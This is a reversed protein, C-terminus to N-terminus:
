FLNISSDLLNNGLSLSTNFRSFTKQSIKQFSDNGLNGLEFVVNSTVIDKVIKQIIDKFRCDFVGNLVKDGSNGFVKTIKSVFQFGFFKDANSFDHFSSSIQFVDKGLHFGLNLRSFDLVVDIVEQVLNLSSNFSLNSSGGRSDLGDQLLNISCYLSNNCSGISMNFRSLTKQSVKQFSDNGLNGLQLVINSTIIDKIIKQIIDKFRSDFVGNLVKDGGNGFVKTIKSVFQLWLFVKSNRFDNLSSSIQFVDKVL